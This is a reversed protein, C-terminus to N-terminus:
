SYSTGVGVGYFDTIIIIIISYSLSHPLFLYVKRPSSGNSSNPLHPKAPDDPDEVTNAPHLPSSASTSERRDEPM